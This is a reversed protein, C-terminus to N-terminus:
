GSVVGRRTGEAGWRPSVDCGLTAVVPRAGQTLPGRPSSGQLPEVDGGSPCFALQVAEFAPRPAVTLALEGHDQVDHDQSGRSKWAEHVTRLSRSILALNVLDHHVLDHLLSAELTTDSAEIRQSALWRARHVVGERRQGTPTSAYRVVIGGLTARPSCGQAVRRFGTPTRRDPTPQERM